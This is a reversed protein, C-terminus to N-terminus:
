TQCRAIERWDGNAECVLTLMTNTATVLNGNLRLNGGDDVVTLAAAFRMSLTHGPYTPPISNINTTGTVFIYSKSISVVMTSASATEFPISDKNAGAAGVLAASALSVGSEFQCGSITVTNSANSEVRVDATGTKRFKCGSIGVRQAGQSASYPTNPAVHIGFRNTASKTGVNYFSCGSFNFDMEPTLIRVDTGSQSIWRCGTFNLDEYHGTNDALVGFCDTVGNPMNGAGNFWCGTFQFQMKMGAGTLYVNHGDRTGDFYTQVFHLNACRYAPSVLMIHDRFNGMDINVMFVAEVDYIALAVAGIPTSNPQLDDTGRLFCDIINLNAGLNVDPATVPYGCTIATGAGTPNVIFVESLTTQEFGRFNFGGHHRQLRLRSFFGRREFEFDFYAGSTRAPASTISFNEFARYITSGDAYFVSDNASSTKLVTADIGEGYIRM